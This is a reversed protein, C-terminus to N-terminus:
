PFNLYYTGVGRLRRAAEDYARAGDVANSYYGLNYTKGKYKIKAEWKRVRRHWSVGRYKKPKLRKRELEAANQIDRWRKEQEAVKLLANWKENPTMKFRKKRQKGAKNSRRSRRKGSKRVRRRKSRRKIKRRM